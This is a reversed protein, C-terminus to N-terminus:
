NQRMGFHGNGLVVIVPVVPFSFFDATQLRLGSIKHNCASYSNEWRAASISKKYTIETSIKSWQSTKPKPINKDQHCNQIM